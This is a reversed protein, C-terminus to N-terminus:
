RPFSGALALLEQALSRFGPAAAPGALDATQGLRCAEAEVLIALRVRVSAERGSRVAPDAMAGITDSDRQLGAATTALADAGELRIQAPGPVHLASVAASWRGAAETPRAGQRVPPYRDPPPPAPALPPGAALGEAAWDPVEAPLVVETGAPVNAPALGQATLVRGQDFTRDALERLRAAILMAQDRLRGPPLDLAARECRVAQVYLSATTAYLRDVLPQGPYPPLRIAAALTSAFVSQSQGLEVSYQQPPLTGAAFQSRQEAMVPIRGALPTFAAAAARDWTTVSAGPTGGGCGWTLGTSLALATAM